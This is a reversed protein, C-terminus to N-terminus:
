YRHVVSEPAPTQLSAKVGPDTLSTATITDAGGDAPPTYLGAATIHGRAASWVVDRSYAGTGTVMATLMQTGAVRAIEVATAFGAGDRANRVHAVIVSFAEYKSADTVHYVAMFYGLGPYIKNELMVSVTNGTYITRHGTNIDYVWWETKVGTLVQGTLGDEPSGVLTITSKDPVVAEWGPSVIRAHLAPVQSVTVEATATGGDGTCTVHYVGPTAPATYVGKDDVTGGADGEQLSWKVDGTWSPTFAQQTTLLLNVRSPTLHAATQGKIEIGAWSYWGEHKTNGQINTHIPTDGATFTVPNSFEATGRTGWSTAWFVLPMSTDTMYGTLVESERTGVTFSFPNCQFQEGNPGTVSVPVAASVAPDAASTARVWYDGVVLPATFLGTVPDIKGSNPADVLSWVVSTDGGSAMGAITASFQVPQGVLTKALAPAITLQPLASDSVTLAVDDIAYAGEDDQSGIHDEFYIQVQQGAFESLDFLCHQYVNRTHTNDYTALTKLVTDGPKLDQGVTRVQVTIWDRSDLRYMAHNFLWFSLQVSGPKDPVTVNQYMAMPVVGGDPGIFTALMGYYKGSHAPMGYDSGKQQLWNGWWGNWGYEFGGNRLLQQKPNTVTFTYYNSLGCNVNKDCATVALWHHGNAITTSDFDLDFAIAPAPAEVKRAAVQDGDLTFSLKAVEHDDTADAHFQITGRDGNVSATSHPPTFDDAGTYPDGVNIAGFAMRVAVNEPSDGGFLDRVAHLAALRADAYGSTPTLYVTLARYWIQAAKDRGIGAMGGPQTLYLSYDDKGPDGSSGMAMFYFARNMPGSVYHVDLQDIGDYWADPSLRDLSPKYMYRIPRPSDPPAMMEGLTWHAADGRTYFDVMKGFIDSTSENLGGSEGWYILGASRSTVGHTM